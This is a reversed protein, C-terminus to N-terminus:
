GGAGGYPVVFSVVGGDRVGDGSAREPRVRDAGGDGHGANANVRKM